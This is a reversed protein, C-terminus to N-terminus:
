VTRQTCHLAKSQIIKKFGTCSRSKFIFESNTRFIKKGGIVIFRVVSSLLSCLYHAKVFNLAYVFGEWGCVLMCVYMCVYCIMYVFIYMHFIYMDMYTMCINLICVSVCICIYGMDALYM